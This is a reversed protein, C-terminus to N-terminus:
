LRSFASMKLFILLSQKISDPLKEQVIASIHKNAAAQIEPSVRRMGCMRSVGLLSGLNSGINGESFCSALNPALHYTTPIAM